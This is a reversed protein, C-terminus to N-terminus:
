LTTVADPAIVEVETDGPPAEPSSEVEVRPQPIERDLSRQTVELQPTAKWLVIATVVVAVVMGLCGLCGCSLVKKVTADM